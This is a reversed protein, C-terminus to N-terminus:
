KVLTVKEVDRRGNSMLAVIYVGSAQGRANWVAQHTGASMHRDIVTDVLQGSLNYVSIKVNGATDLNYEITTSPNFPNPSVGGIGFADPAIAAEAATPAGEITLTYHKTENASLTLPISTAATLAYEEGSGASRLKATYGGPLAIINGISFVVDIASFTTTLAVDWEYVGSGDPRYDYALPERGSDAPDNLTLRIYDGFPTMDMANFVSTDDFYDVVVGARNYTDRIESGVAELSLDLHWMEIDDLSTSAAKPLPLNDTMPVRVMCEGWKMLYWYPDGLMHYTKKNSSAPLKVEHYMQDDPIAVGDGDVVLTVPDPNSHRLWFGRGPAIDPFGTGPGNYSFYNANAYDWKYVQWKANYLGSGLEDGFTADFDGAQPVLPSAMLYWHDPLFEKEMTTPIPFLDPNHRHPLKQILLDVDSYNIVWFGSWPDIFRSELPSIPIYQNACKDWLYAYQHILGQSAAELVTM